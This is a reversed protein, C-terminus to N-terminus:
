HGHEFAIYRQHLLDILQSGKRSIQRCTIDLFHSKKSHAKGAIIPVTMPNFSAIYHDHNSQRRPVFYGYMRRAPVFGITVNM